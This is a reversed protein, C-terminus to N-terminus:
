KIVPLEKGVLSPNSPPIGEISILSEMVSRVV